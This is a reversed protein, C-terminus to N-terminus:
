AYRFRRIDNVGNHHRCGKPLFSRNECAVSFVYFPEDPSGAAFDSDDSDSTYRLRNMWSVDDVHPPHLNRQARSFYTRSNSTYMFLGTGTSDAEANMSSFILSSPSQRPCDSGDSRSKMVDRRSTMAERGRMGVDKLSM